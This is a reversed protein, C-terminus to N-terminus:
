KFINIKKITKNSFKHSNLCEIYNKKIDELNKIDFAHKNDPFNIKKSSNPKVYLFIKEPNYSTLAYLTNLNNNHNSYGVNKNFNKRFYLIKKFNLEKTDYSMPTHLISKKTYREFLKLSRKIRSDNSLGTSIYIHKNKKKLKNILKKDNNAISLLKYFDFKLKDFYQYTRLDCVALGIKKRKKKCIKIIKKLRDESIFHNPYKEYYDKTQIMLTAMKFSSKLYFNILKNLYIKSGLHNVGFEIIFM